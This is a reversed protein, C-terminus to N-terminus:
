RPFDDEPDGLDGEWLQNVLETSERRIQHERWAYGGVGGILALFVVASVAMLFVSSPIGAVTPGAPTVPGTVRVSPLLHVVSHGQSDAVVLKPAYEGPTLYTHQVAQGPTANLVSGDGFWWTATYPGTGGAVLTQFSDTFPALGSTAAETYTAALPVIATVVVLATASTGAGGADIAAATITYNGPNPFSVAQRWPTGDWSTDHECPRAAASPCFTLNYPPSGGSASATVNAFFPATGIAHDLSLVVTPQSGSFTEVALSRQSSTSPSLRASHGGFTGVLGLTAVAVWFLVLIAPGVGFRRTGPLHYRASVTPPLRLLNM